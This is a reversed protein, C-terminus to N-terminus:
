ERISSMATSCATNGITVFLSSDDQCTLKCKLHIKDAFVGRGGPANANIDFNSAPLGLATGAVAAAHFRLHLLDRLTDM